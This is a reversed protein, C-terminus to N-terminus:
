TGPGALDGHAGAAPREEDGQMGEVVELTTAMSKAEEITLVGEKGVELVRGRRPV